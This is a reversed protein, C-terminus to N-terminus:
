GVGVVAPRPRVWRPRFASCPRDGRSRDAAPPASPIMAEKGPSRTRRVGTTNSPPGTSLMYWNANAASVAATGPVFSATWRDRIAIVLGRIEMLNAIREMVRVARVLSACPQPERHPRVHGPADDGFRPCAEIMQAMLAARGLRFDPARVHESRTADYAPRGGYFSSLGIWAVVSGDVEAVWLPRRAPDHKAFWERRSEVTVPELDATAARGPIAANYIAVIAPLDAETADRVIM